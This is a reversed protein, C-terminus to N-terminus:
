IKKAHNNNIKICAKSAFLVKYESETNELSFVGNMRKVCEDVTESSTKKRFCKTREKHFEGNNTCQSDNEVRNTRHVRRTERETKELSFVENM